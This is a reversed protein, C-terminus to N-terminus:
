LNRSKWSYTATGGQQSGLHFCSKVKVFGLPFYAGHSPLFKNSNDVTLKRDVSIYSAKLACACLSLSSVCAEGPHGSDVHRTSVPFIEGKCRIYM